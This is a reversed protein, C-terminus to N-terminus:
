NARKIDEHINHINKKETSIVVWYVIVVRQEGREIVVPVSTESASDRGRINM